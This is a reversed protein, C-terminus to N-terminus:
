SEVVNKLLSKIRTLDGKVYIMSQLMVPQFRQLFVYALVSSLIYSISSAVAAGTIGMHPILGLYLLITVLSVIASIKTNIGVMGKSAFFTALITNWAFMVTGPALLLLPLFTGQFKVGVLPIILPKLMVVVAVCTALTLWFTGRLGFLIESILDHRDRNRILKPFAVFAVSNAIQWIAESLSIALAYIGVDTTPWFYAVVFTDFRYNLFQIVNGTQATFGYRVIKLWVRKPPEVLKAITFQRLIAALCLIISFTSSVLMGMLVGSVGYGLSFALLSIFLTCIKEFSNLFNVRAFRELGLLFSSLFSREISASVNLFSLVLDTQSLKNLVPISSNGQLTFAAFGLVLSLGAILHGVMFVDGLMREDSNRGLAVYYTTAASIGASFVLIGMAILSSAIAM